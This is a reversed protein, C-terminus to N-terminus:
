AASKIIMLNVLEQLWANTDEKKKKQLLLILVHSMNFFVNSIFKIIYLIFMFYLLIATNVLVCVVNVDSM